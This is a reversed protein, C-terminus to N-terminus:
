GLVQVMLLHFAARWLRYRFFMKSCRCAFSDLEYGLINLVLQRPFREVVAHTDVSETRRRSYGRSGSRIEQILVPM